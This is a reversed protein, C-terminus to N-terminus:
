ATAGSLMAEVRAVSEDQIHPLVRAHTDLTFATSAHGLQESVIKPSVGAALAITAASRRLDCLRIRPLGARDVTSRFCQLIAQSVAAIDGSEWCGPKGRGSFGCLVSPWRHLQRDHQPHLKQPPPELHTVRPRFLRQILRRRQPAKRAHVQTPDRRWTSETVLVTLM